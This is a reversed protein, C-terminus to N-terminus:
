TSRGSRSRPERREDDAAQAPALVDGLRDGAQCRANAPSGSARSIRLPLSPRRSGPRRGGCRPPPRSRACGRFRASTRAPRRGARARCRPSRAGARRPCPWRGARSRASSRPGPRRTRPRAPRQHEVDRGGAPLTGVVRVVSRRRARRARVDVRHGLTQAPDRRVAVLRAIEPALRRRPRVALAVHPVHARRHEVHHLAAQAPGQAPQPRQPVDLARRAQARVDRREGRPRSRTRTTVSAAPADGTQPQQM